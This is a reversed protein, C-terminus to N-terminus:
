SIRSVLGKEKGTFQSIAIQKRTFRSKAEYDHVSFRSREHSDAFHSNIRTMFNSQLDTIREEERTKFRSSTHYVAHGTGPRSQDGNQVEPQEVQNLLKSSNLHPIKKRM